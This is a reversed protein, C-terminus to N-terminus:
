VDGAIQDLLDQTRVPKRLVFDASVPLTTRGEWGTIVGVRLTPWRSRAEAVLDWGSADPLGIDTLLLDYTPANGCSLYTLADRVTCVCDVSHGEAGLLEEIFASGDGNDEVLLIHRGIKPRPGRSAPPEGSAALPFRLRVTTGAGPSSEVDVGGRHRRMIGYVESLGLGTGRPGKTSFFPEFARDRIEETMGCGTDRVELCAQGECVSTVISLTGGQEMADLSNQILNLMAERIEGPIGRALAAHDDTRQLEITGGSAREAWLPRTMAVVESAIAVLDVVEDRDGQLPDQRIFRGVRQATAAGTEAAKAIRTAYDRVADPNHANLHLLHAAAMIPNLANNVDHMVGAALQGVATLRRERARAEQLELVERTRAAVMRELREAETSVREFLAASRRVQEELENALRTRETVDREVSIAGRIRGQGDRLPNANVEIVAQSGDRRRVALTQGRVSEGRLARATPHEHMFLSTGSLARPHEQQWLETLSRAPHGPRELQAQTNSRSINGAADFVRVSEPIVDFITSLQDLSRALDERLEERESVDTGIFLLGPASASDIRSLTAEVVRPGVANCFRMRVDLSGAGGAIVADITDTIDALANPFADYIPRGIAQVEAVATLEGFRANARVLRLEGDFIAIALPVTEFVSELRALDAGFPGLDTM